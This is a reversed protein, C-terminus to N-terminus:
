PESAQRPSASQQDAPKTFLMDVALLAVGISIASDAINFSPWYYSMVYWQIFDVVSGFRIRDILNGIAGSAILTFAVVQLREETKRIVAAIVGLAILTVSIFFVGRFWAPATAFLSFAAGPNTAYTLNFCGPIVPVTQYILFHTRIYYKTLQDIAVLVFLIATVWLYKNQM